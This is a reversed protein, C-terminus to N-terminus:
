GEGESDWGKLSLGGRSRGLPFTQSWLKVRESNSHIREVGSAGDKGGQVGKLLHPDGLLLIFFVASSGDM